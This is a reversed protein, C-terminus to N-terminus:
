KIFIELLIDQDQEPSDKPTLAKNKAVKEKIDKIVTSNDKTNNQTELKRANIKKDTPGPNALSEYGSVQHGVFVGLESIQNLIDALDSEALRVSFGENDNAIVNGPNKKNIIASIDEGAKKIDTAEVELVVQQSSAINMSTMLTQNEEGGSISDASDPIIIQGPNQDNSDNNINSDSGTRNSDSIPSAAIILEKRKSVSGPTLKTPESVSTETMRAADKIVKIEGTENRNGSYLDWGSFAIGWILLFSAATGLAGSWIWVKAKRNKKNRSGRVIIEENLLRKRLNKGFEKPPEVPPLNQVLGSGFSLIELDRRCDPCGKL